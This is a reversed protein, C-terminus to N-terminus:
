SQNRVNDSNVLSLGVIKIIDSHHLETVITIM